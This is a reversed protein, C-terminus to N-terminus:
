ATAKKSGQVLTTTPIRLHGEKAAEVRWRLVWTVQSSDTRKGNIIQISRSVNPTAGLPTVTAGPIDLKPQDPAPSEDFGVAGLILTFPMGAHPQAGRELQFRAQPTDAWAVWTSAALLVLAVPISRM